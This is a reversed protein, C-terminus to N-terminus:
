HLFRVVIELFLFNTTSKNCVNTNTIAYIHEALVAHVHSDIFIAFRATTIFVRHLYVEILFESKQVCLIGARPYVIINYPTYNALKFSLWFIM